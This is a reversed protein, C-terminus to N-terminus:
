GKKARRKGEGQIGLSILQRFLRIWESCSHGLWLHWLIFEFITSLAIEGHVDDLAM